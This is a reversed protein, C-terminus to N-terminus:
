PLRPPRPLRLGRHRPPTTRVDTGGIVTYARIRVVPAGPPPAPGELETDNGGVLAFGGVEVDVGEPVLIDSGGIVSFIRIEM